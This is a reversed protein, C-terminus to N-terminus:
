ETKLPGLLCIIHRYVRVLEAQTRLIRLRLVQRPCDQTGLLLDPSRLLRGSQAFHIFCQLTNLSKDLRIQLARNRLQPFLNIRPFQALNPKSLILPRQPLIRFLLDM